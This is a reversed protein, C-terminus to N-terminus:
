LGAAADLARQKRRLQFEKYMTFLIPILILTLITSSILGGIMPAAMRKMPGSGAGTAWMIPVLGLITTMVTMMKPRVRLM